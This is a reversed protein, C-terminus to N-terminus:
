SLSGFLSYPIPFQITMLDPAQHRNLGRERARAQGQCGDRSALGAATKVWLWKEGPPEGMRDM